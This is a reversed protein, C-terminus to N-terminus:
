VRLDTLLPVAKGTIDTRNILLPHWIHRAFRWGHETHVIEDLNLAYGSFSAGAHSRGHEWMRSPAVLTQGDTM